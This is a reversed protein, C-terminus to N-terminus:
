LAARLAKYMDAQDKWYKTDADLKEAIRRLDAAYLRFDDRDFHKAIERLKDADSLSAYKATAAAAGNTAGVRKEDLERGEDFTEMMMESVTKHCHICAGGDSEFEHKCGM